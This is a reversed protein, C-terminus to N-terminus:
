RDAGCRRSCPSAPTSRGPFHRSRSSPNAAGVGPAVSRARSASPRSPARACRLPRHVWLPSCTTPHSFNSRGTPSPPRESGISGGPLRPGPARQQTPRSAASAVAKPHSSLFMRALRAIRSSSARPEFCWHSSPPWRPYRATRRQEMWRRSMWSKARSRIGILPRAMWYREMRPRAMSRRETQQIGM